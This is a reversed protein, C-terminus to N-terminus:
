RPRAGKTTRGPPEPLYRRLAAPLERWEEPALWVHRVASAWVPDRRCREAIADAYEDPFDSLLDEVPGAAVYARHDDDAQPDHLMADLVELPLDGDEVADDVAQWAWWHEADALRRDAASGGGLQHQLRYSRVVDEARGPDWSM